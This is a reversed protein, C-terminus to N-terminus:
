IQAVAKPAEAALSPEALLEQSSFCFSTDCVQHRWTLNKCSENFDLLYKSLTSQTNPGISLVSGTVICLCPDSKFQYGPRSGSGM